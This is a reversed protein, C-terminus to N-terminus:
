VERARVAHPGSTFVGNVTGANRVLGVATTGAVASIIQSWENPSIVGDSYASVFVVGVTAVLSAITKAYRYGPINASNFVMLAGSALVLVNVTESLGWPGDVIWAPAVAAVVAALLQLLAKLVTM